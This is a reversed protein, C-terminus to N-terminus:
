AMQGRNVHKVLSSSFQQHLSYDFEFIKNIMAGATKRMKLLVHEDLYM